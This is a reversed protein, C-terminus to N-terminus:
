RIVRGYESSKALRSFYGYAAESASAIAAEGSAADKLYGTMVCFVYPRDAVYVIGADVQIGELTGSKSAVRVGSPVGRHIPTSKPKSLIAILQDKHAATLGEGRYMLELLRAIENPTSVNEDGRRAAAGDMMKRRLRTRALGLSSMRANVSDMGVADILVNTATNDSLVVMLTAYDTLPMSPATLQGLVGSGGVAQARQLPRVEDLRLRGEEAQKFMEYLIALKITSATAFVEGPLREIRTATSLDIISYGMVGDIRAAIDDLETQLKQRLETTKPDSTAPQQIAASGPTLLAGALLAAVLQLAM